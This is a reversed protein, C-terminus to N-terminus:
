KELFFDIVAKIFDEIPKAPSPITFGLNLLISLVFAWIFIISYLILEKKRNQKILSLVELGGLLVYFIIVLLVIKIM